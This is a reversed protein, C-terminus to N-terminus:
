EITNPLVGEGFSVTINLIENRRIEGNLSQKYIIDRESDSKEYNIQVNTMHNKNIFEVADDINWGLM